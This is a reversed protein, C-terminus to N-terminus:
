PGPERLVDGASRLVRGEVHAIPVQGLHHLGRPGAIVEQRDLVDLRVHRVRGVAPVEGEGVADAHGPGEALVGVDVAGVQDIRRGGVELGEPLVAEGAVAGGVDGGVSQLHHEEDGGVGGPALPRLVHVGAEVGHPTGHRHLDAVEGAVHLGQHLTALHVEAHLPFALDVQLHVLANGHGRQDPLHALRNRVWVLVM